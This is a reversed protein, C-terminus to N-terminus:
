RRTATRELRAFGQPGHGYRYLLSGGEAYRSACQEHEAGRAPICKGVDAEDLKGHLLPMEFLRVREARVRIADFPLTVNGSGDM